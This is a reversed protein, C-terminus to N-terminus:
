QTIKDKVEQKLKIIIVDLDFEGLDGQKHKRVSVSKNEVEKKGVIFMYPIKEREAESIKYNIKENRSDLEVRFGEM